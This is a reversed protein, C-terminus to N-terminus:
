LIQTRRLTRPESAVFPKRAHQLMRNDWILLDGERWQHLYNFESTSGCYNWVEELLARGEERSPVGKYDTVTMLTVCLAKRGTDPDTWVLPHWAQPSGPKRTGEVKWPTYDGDQLCTLTEARARLEAPMSDLLKMANRFETATGSKPIEMGYLIIARLPDDYYFHDQHFEIEVDGLIGDERVNSVFQTLPVEAEVSYKTRLIVNGFVGGFRKQEDVNVGPQRVLLLLHERMAARLENATAEDIPRHLDFGVLEAGLHPSLRRLELAM